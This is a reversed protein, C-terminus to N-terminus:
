SLFPFYFFKLVFCIGWGPSSSASPSCRRGNRVWGRGPRGSGWGSPASGWRAESAKGVKGVLCACATPLPCRPDPALSSGLHSSSSSKFTDCVNPWHGEWSNPWSPHVREVQLIYPCDSSLRGKEPLKGPRMSETFRWHGWLCHCPRLWFTRLHPHWCTVGSIPRPGLSSERLISDQLGCPWPGPCSQRKERWGM